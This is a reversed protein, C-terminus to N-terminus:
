RVLRFPVVDDGDRVYVDLGFPVSSTGGTTRFMYTYGAQLNAIFYFEGGILTRSEVREDTSPTIRIPSDEEGPAGFSCIGSATSLTCTDGIEGGIWIYYTASIPDDADWADSRLYAIQLSGNQRSMYDFFAFPASDDNWDTDVSMRMSSTQGGSIWITCASGKTLTVKYYRCGINYYEGREPDYENVLTVEASGGIGIPIARNMCSGSMEARAGLMAGAALLMALMKKM